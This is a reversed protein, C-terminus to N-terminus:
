KRIWRKSKCSYFWNAFGNKQDTENKTGDDNEFVLPCLGKTGGPMRVQVSVIECCSSEQDCITVAHQKAATVAEELMECFQKPTPNGSPFPAGPILRNIDCLKAASCGVVTAASCPPCYINPPYDAVDANDPNKLDRVSYQDERLAYGHAGIVVISCKELTMQPPRLGLYDWKSVGDNGVFAYLNLGGREGIPDRSVWRGLEPHYYRYGYNYLGSDTDQFEAHFLFSWDLASATRTAFSADMFRVPGFADDGFREVVAASTDIVAAPDLYDKLLYRTEDLTGAVSRKRRIM